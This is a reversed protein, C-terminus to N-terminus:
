PGRHRGAPRNAIILAAARRGTAIAGHVTGTRGEPDAAEGAFYLTREVPQGLRKPADDGNVRAYSYAGRSYPDAIWDHTHSSILHKRLTAVTTPLLSALSRLAAAEFEAKTTGVLQLAAPGGCWGILLPSRVPYTTWWVPFEVDSTGHLFSLTDLREDGATAAFRATTWFPADFRLAIRAVAGMTLASIASRKSPPLPPEFTIAGREDRPAALVGLPVTIIAARGRAPRAGAVRVIVSGARWEIANVVSRLRLRRTIGEALANVISAYGDLVRGIRRERVDDGPSGGAALARESIIGPHAAHFGQVFQLALARDDPDLSTNRALAEAFTRDPEREEDLRRMVRDLREWFDDLLSLDGHRARWRRGAVDVVRLGRAAAIEVVESAEGHTFEAGLEIPVPFGRPRLTFMRGGIRDRAELIVFPVGADRLAQGAALGAAGAGIIVVQGSRGDSLKGKRRKASSM